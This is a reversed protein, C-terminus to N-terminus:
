QQVTHCLLYDRWKVCYEKNLHIGDTSAEPPLFGNVSVAEGPVVYYVEKEKVVQKIMENFRDINANNVVSDANQQESVPMILQVYIIANPSTQKVVDILKGYNEIFLDTNPWGLENIGLMIYVKGYSKQKLANEVTQMTGDPAQIVAKTFATSVNLGKYAFYTANNVGSYMMFGETRSNGIFLADDFYSIPESNALPVPADHTSPQPTINSVGAGTSVSSSSSSSSHEAYWSDMITGPTYSQDYDVSSYGSLEQSSSSGSSSTSESDSGESTSKGEGTVAIVTAIIVLVFSVIIMFIVMAKAKSNRKKKRYVYVPRKQSM